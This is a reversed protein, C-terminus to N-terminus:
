GAGYLSLQVPTTTLRGGELRLLADKTDLGGPATFGGPAGNAAVVRHCPVVIPFPNTAMARGVSRASSGLERALEGYTRVAGAGITRALESVGVRFPSAGTWDILVQDLEGDGHDLHRAIRAVDEAARGTPTTRPLGELGLRECIAAELEDATRAADDLLIRTGLLGHPGFAVACGCVRGRLITLGAAELRPPPAASARAESATM